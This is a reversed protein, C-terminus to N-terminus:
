VSWVKVYAVAEDIDNLSIAGCQTFCVLCSLYTHICVCFYMPVCMHVHTYLNVCACDHPAHMCVSIVSVRTVQDVKQRLEECEDRLSHQQERLQGLEERLHNSTAIPVSLPLVAHMVHCLLVLSLAASCVSHSAALFVDGASM